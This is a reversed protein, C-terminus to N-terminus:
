IAACLVIQGAVLGHSLEKTGSIGKFTSNSFPLSTSQVCVLGPRLPSATVQM